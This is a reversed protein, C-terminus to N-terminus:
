FYRLPFSIQGGQPGFSFAAKAFSPPGFNFPADRSFGVGEEPVGLLSRRLKGSNDESQFAQVAYIGPPVNQVTVTTTGPQAPARGKYSCTPKLFEAQTCVAVLIEGRANRVNTVEIQLTAAQAHAAVLLVAAALRKM